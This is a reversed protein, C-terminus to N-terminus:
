RVIVPSRPPLKGCRKMSEARSSEVNARPTHPARKEGEGTDGKLSENLREKHPRTGSLSGWHNIAHCPEGVLSGCKPCKVEKPDRM